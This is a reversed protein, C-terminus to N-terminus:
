DKKWFNEDSQKQFSIFHLHITVVLKAKLMLRVLLFLKSERWRPGPIHLFLMIEQRIVIMHSHLGTVDTGPDSGSLQWYLTIMQKCVDDKERLVKQKNWLIHIETCFLRL